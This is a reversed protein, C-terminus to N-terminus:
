GPANRSLGHVEKILSPVVVYGIVAIGAILLVYIVLIVAGRRARTRTGIWDVVPLLALALFLSIAVLRVVGRVRWVLYLATGCAVVIFMLRVVGRLSPARSVFRHHTGPTVRSRPRRRHPSPSRM